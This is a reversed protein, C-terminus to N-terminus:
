WVIFLLQSDCIDYLTHESDNYCQTITIKPIETLYKHQPHLIPTSTPTAHLNTCTTTNIGELQVIAYQM